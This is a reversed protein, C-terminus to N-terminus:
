QQLEYSEMIRVSIDTEKHLIGRELIVLGITEGAAKGGKVTMLDQVTLITQGDAKMIYDGKRVGRAWADSRSDVSEVLVGYSYGKPHIDSVTIGLMPHGTVHGGAILADVIPKATATPIAFGLGEVTEPWSSMKLSTIGVVQGSSNILAGGSNGFNLAASTQILIMSRGDVQVDRNIASIIGETMTGKLEEGLPNGIALATDGVQLLDSNGFEAPTLGSADIKLVALDSNVDYGVLRAKYVSGDELTVDAQYGGEIVHANTIIYGNESFIIGTGESIGDGGTTTVFVISAINKRYIEQYTLVEGPILSLPLATGDGTTARDITTESWGGSELTNGSFWSPLPLRNMWPINWNRNGLFIMCTLVSAILILFIFFVATPRKKKRQQKRPPLPTPPPLPQSYFRYGSSPASQDYYFNHM